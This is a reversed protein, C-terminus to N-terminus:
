QMQLETQKADSIQDDTVNEFFKTTLAIKQLQDQKLSGSAQLLHTSFWTFISRKDHNGSTSSTQHYHKPSQIKYINKLIHCIIQLTAPKKWFVIILSVVHSNMTFYGGITVCESFKHIDNELSRLFVIIKRVTWNFNFLSVIVLLSPLNQSVCFKSQSSRVTPWASRFLKMLFIYDNNLNVSPPLSSSHFLKVYYNLRNCWYTFGYFLYGYYM